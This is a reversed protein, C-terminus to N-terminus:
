VITSVQFLYNFFYIKDAGESLYKNKLISLKDNTM